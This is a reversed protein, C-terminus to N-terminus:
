NNIKIIVIKNLGFLHSHFNFQIAKIKVGTVFKISKPHITGAILWNLPLM